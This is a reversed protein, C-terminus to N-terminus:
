KPPCTIIRAADQLAFKTDAIEARIAHAKGDKLSAPVPYKFGHKGDGIGADLLDGRLVNAVGEAVWREDALIEIPVPVTLQVDDRAWGVAYRGDLGDFTGSVATDSDTGIAAASVDDDAAEWGIVPASSELHASADEISEAKSMLEAEANM